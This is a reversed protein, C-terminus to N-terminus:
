SAASAPPLGGDRSSAIWAGVATTHWDMPQEAFPGPRPGEFDVLAAEMRAILSTYGDTINEVDLNQIARLDAFSPLWVRAWTGGPLELRRSYLEVAEALPKPQPERVPRRSM